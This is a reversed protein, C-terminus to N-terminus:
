EADRRLLLVTGVALVVIVYAWFIAAHAPNSLGAAVVEPVDLDSEVGLTRFGTDFPVFRVVRAPAFQVLLAEVVLWWVLLGSIAGASHRVAMGLGLGLLASGSTYLLAWLVRTAVGSADGVELGGALSGAFGAVMGVGGLLLGFGTAVLAKSAAVPWRTPHATLSGALTGHQAESTFLLVGAVAALVATLLMPFLFADTATLAEDTGFAATAWSILLGVVGSAALLAKNARLTTAKIQESRVIAAISRIATPAGALSPDLPTTMASM